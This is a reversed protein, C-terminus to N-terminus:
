PIKISGKVLDLLAVILGGLFTSIAIVRTQSKELIRLREEHDKNVAHQDEVIDDVIGRLEQVTEKISITREDIRVLLRTDNVHAQDVMAVGGNGKSSDTRDPLHENMTPEETM